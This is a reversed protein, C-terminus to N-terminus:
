YLVDIAPARRCAPHVLRRTLAFWLPPSVKFQKEYVNPPPLSENNISIDHANDSHRCSRWIVYGFWILWPYVIQIGCWELAIPIVLHTLFFCIPYDMLHLLVFSYFLFFFTTYSSARLVLKSAGNVHMDYTHTERVQGPWVLRVLVTHQRRIREVGM